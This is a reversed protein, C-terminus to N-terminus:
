SSPRDDPRLRLRLPAAALRPAQGHLVPLFLLACVSWDIAASWMTASAFHAGQMMRVLSFALGAGVGIALGTWRWRPRGAAWGAFYLCLLAYGGAAHGSPLCHGVSAKTAAWFPASRDAAYSLTGGFEVLEVPCHASTSAKMWNVLAPGILMACAMTLLITRWPRLRPQTYSLAWALLSAAAVVIPLGRAAQHGLLNLLRSARWAFAKANPDYFASELALDLPGHQLLWAAAFLVVPVLVVHVAVDGAGSM